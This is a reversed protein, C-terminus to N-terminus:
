NHHLRTDIIPVVVLCVLMTPIMYWANYTVSGLWPTAWYIHGAVIHLGLRVLNTVAAGTYFKGYNPFVSSLGYIGFALPYEMMFQIFIQFISFGDSNQVLWMQGTMFQLVVSLTAVVVGKKWGLHYSCLILAVVGLGLTGGQPMKFFPIMNSIVDLVYFLALYMAMLVLDKTQNSKM